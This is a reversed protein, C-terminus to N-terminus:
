LVNELSTKVIWDHTAQTKIIALFLMHTLLRSVSRVHDERIIEGESRRRTKGGERGREEEAAILRLMIAYNYM